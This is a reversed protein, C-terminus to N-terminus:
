TGDVALDMWGSSVTHERGIDDNRSKVEKFAPPELHIIGFGIEGYDIEVPVSDSYRRNKRALIDKFGKRDKRRVSAAYIITRGVAHRQRLVYPFESIREIPYAEVPIGAPYLPLNLDDPISGYALPADTM